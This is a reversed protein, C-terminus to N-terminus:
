LYKSDRKSELDIIAEANAKEYKNLTPGNSDFDEPSYEPLYWSQENFYEQLDKNNFERGLRAFIENRAFYLEKDSLEELEETTYYREDSEPLIWEEEEKAQPTPEAEEDPIAPPEDQAAAEDEVDVPDEAFSEESDDEESAEQEEESWDTPSPAEVVAEGQTDSSAGSQSVLVAGVGIGVLAVVAAVALAIGLKRNAKPSNSLNPAPTEAGSMPVLTQTPSPDNNVKHGCEPCFAADDDIRSGCENCFM